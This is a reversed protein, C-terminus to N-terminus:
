RLRKVKNILSSTVKERYLHSPSDKIQQLLALAADYQRDLVLALAMYYESEDKFSVTGNINNKALVQRFRAIARPPDELGLYAIGSLFLDKVLATDAIRVVTTYNKERYAKEFSSESGEGRVTILEYPRYYENFVKETSVSFYNYTIVGVVVLIVGAAISMTYRTISRPARRRNKLEKMMENHIGAVETKMGHLRVAQRALQLNKLEEQLQPDSAIQEEM